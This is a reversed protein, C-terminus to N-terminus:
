IVEDYLLSAPLSPRPAGFGLKTCDSRFSGYVYPLKGQCYM